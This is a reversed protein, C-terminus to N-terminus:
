LLFVEQLYFLIPWQAQFTRVQVMENKQGAFVSGQGVLILLVRHKESYNYLEVAGSLSILM